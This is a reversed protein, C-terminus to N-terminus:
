ESTIVPYEIFSPAIESAADAEAEPPADVPDVPDGERILRTGLGVIRDDASLGKLIETYRGDEIGIIVDRREVTNEKPRVVYVFRENQDHQITA